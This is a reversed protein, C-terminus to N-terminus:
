KKAVYTAFWWGFLVAVFAALLSVTFGDMM